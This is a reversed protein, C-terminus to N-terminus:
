PETRQGRRWALSPKSSILKGSEPRGAAHMVSVDEGASNLLPDRNKMGWFSRFILAMGDVLM